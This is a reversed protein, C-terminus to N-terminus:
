SLTVFSSIPWGPCRRCVLVHLLHDGLLAGPERLVTRLAVGEFPDREDDDDVPPHRWYDYFWEDAFTLLNDLPHGADCRPPSGQSFPGAVIMQQLCVHGGLKIGPATSEDCYVGSPDDGLEERFEANMVECPDPPPLWRFDWAEFHPLDDVREPHLACDIVQFDSAAPIHRPPRARPATVDAARRWFVFPRPARARGEEEQTGKHLHSCWMLQLLDADAPFYEALTDARRLQMVPYLPARDTAPDVHPIPCTPWPADAPWLLAGGLKSATRSRVFGPRPHLRIAPRVHRRLFPM